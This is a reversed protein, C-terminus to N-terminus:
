ILRSGCAWGNEGPCFVIRIEGYGSRGAKMGMIFFLRLPFPLLGCVASIASIKVSLLPRM